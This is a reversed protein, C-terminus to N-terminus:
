KVERRERLEKNELRLLRIEQLLETQKALIRDIKLELVTIQKHRDDTTLQLNEIRNDDRLHNKHHVIEWPQLCRGLSKAMVLRHELVYGKNYTMSYFFDAQPLLVEIYGNSM